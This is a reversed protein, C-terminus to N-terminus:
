ENIPRGIRRRCEDPVRDLNIDESTGDRIDCVDPIGNSNCDKSVGDAIAEWDPIGDDNCDCDVHIALDQLTIVGRFDEHITDLVQAGWGRSVEFAFTGCADKSVVLRLTAAYAPTGPDRSMPLDPDLVKVVLYEALSAMAVFDFLAQRDSFILDPRTRDIFFGLEPWHNPGRCRGISVGAYRICDPWRAPCDPDSLCFTEEERIPEDWGLPVITGSDGSIASEQLDLTAQFINAGFPLVTKWNSVRIEADVVDGSAVDVCNTPAIPQGNVAVARLSFCPGTECTPDCQAVSALLEAVAVEGETVQAFVPTSVCAAVLAIKRFAHKSM